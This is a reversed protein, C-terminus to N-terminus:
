EEVWARKGRGKGEWVKQKGMEKQKGMGMSMGMSMGMGEGAGERSDNVDVEIVGGFEERERVGVPKVVAVGDDVAKRKRGNMAVELPKAKVTGTRIREVADPTLACTATLAALDTHHPPSHLFRSVLFEVVRPDRAPATPTTPTTPTTPPAPPAASSSSSMACMLRLLRLLRLSLLPIHPKPFNRINQPTETYECKVICAHPPHPPQALPVKQMKYTQKLFKQNHAM